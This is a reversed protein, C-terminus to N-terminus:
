LRVLSSVIEVITRPISNVENVPRPSFFCYGSINLLRYLHAFTPQQENVGLHIYIDENAQLFPLMSFIRFYESVMFHWYMGHHSHSIVAVEKVKRVNEFVDPQEILFILLSSLQGSQDNIM